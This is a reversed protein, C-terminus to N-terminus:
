GARLVLRRYIQDVVTALSLTDNDVILDALEEYFPNREALLKKLTALRGHSPLLPRQEDGSLRHLLLQPSTRLYVVCGSRSLCARNEPDLVAGGGTAVVTGQRRSLERIAQRERVRFGREGEQDFIGAVSLGARHEIFQDSDVFPAACREALLRGAESKGAGMPGILFINGPGGCVESFQNRTRQPEKAM